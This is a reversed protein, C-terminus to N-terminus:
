ATKNNENIPTQPNTQQSTQQQSKEETKDKENKIDQDKKEADPKNEQLKGSANRAAALKAELYKIIEERSFGGILLFPLINGIMAMGEKNKQPDSSKLLDITKTIKEIDKTVWESRTKQKGHLDRPPALKTYNSEWTKRVEEYEEQKVAQIRNKTPLMIGADQIQVGVKQGVIPKIHSVSASATLVASAVPNGKEKEKVLEDQVKTFEGRASPQMIISPNAISELAEHTRAIQQHTQINSSITASDFGTIEKITPISLNARKLTPANARLAIDKDPRQPPISSEVRNEEAGPVKFGTTSTVPAATFSSSSYSPPSLSSSQQETTVGKASSVVTQINEKRIPEGTEKSVEKQPVQQQPVTFGLRSAQNAFSPSSSNQKNETTTNTVTEFRTVQVPEKSEKKPLKFGSLSARQIFTPAEVNSSTKGGPVSSIVSLHEQERQTKNVNIRTAPSVVSHVNPETHQIIQPIVGSTTASSPQVVGLQREKMLTQAPSPITTQVSSFFRNMFPFAKAIGTTSVSSVNNTVAQSSTVLNTRTLLQQLLVNEGLELSHLYNLFIQLLVFPLIIVVWLMLLAVIYLGFSEPSNVSNELNVTQGPAGILINTAVPYKEANLSNFNILPIGARWLSVLGSLLIAFIPAYLVWRFFEGLWIKASNRIPTYLLLLPFVPSMVIFFWLIIKRFLLVGAMIYYTVATFKVLFLSAFVSEDYGVGAKRFGIFEGYKFAINLLDSTSIATGNKVLFFGQFIDTIQYLFQVLAFSFTILLLIFIFRPIFRMATISRGRSVILVFATALVLLVSLAYIVIRIQAWFTSLSSNNLTSWQPNKLTLDLFDKARVAAKGYFTVDKDPYPCWEGDPVDQCLTSTDTYTPPDDAYAPHIFIQFVFLLGIFFIPLLKKM